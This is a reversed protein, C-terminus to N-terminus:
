GISAAGILAQNSPLWITFSSGKSPASKVTIRGAHAKVVVQAISLGLGAGAINRREVEQTRYFNEFIYDM